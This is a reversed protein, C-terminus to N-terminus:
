KVLRLLSVQGTSNPRFISPSPSLSIVECGVYKTQSAMEPTLKAEHRLFGIIPQGFSAAVKLLRDMAVSQTVEGREYKSFANAGGGFLLAADSQSLGFQARVAVLDDGSLLCDAHKKADAIKRHNRRVQDPLIPDAGCSACVFHELGDVHLPKGDHMLDQSHTALTLNGVDCVPCLPEATSM